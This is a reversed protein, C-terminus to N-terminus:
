NPLYYGKIHKSAYCSTSYHGERGCRYCTGSAQASGTKKIPKKKANEQKCSREHVRCGFQTTFTRECYDCEWEDESESEEESESEQNRRPMCMRFHTMYEEFDLFSKGCGCRATFSSKRKCQNAFHGPKGCKMCKDKAMRIEKRLLEEQEETLEISTYTGGRVKDIGYISMYQKTIKDEDFPSANEITKELSLPKYEKTFASGLGNQHQQYRKTVDDTKGIYYRGGELSLVYITTTTM